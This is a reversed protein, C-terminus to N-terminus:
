RYWNVVQISLIRSILFMFVGLMITPM